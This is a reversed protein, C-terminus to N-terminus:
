GDDGCDSMIAELVTAVKRVQSAVNKQFTSHTTEIVKFVLDRLQQHSMKFEAHTKYLLEVADFLKDVAYVLVVTLTDMKKLVLLKICDSLMSVSEDKIGQQQKQIDSELQEIEQQLRPDLSVETVGTVKDLSAVADQTVIKLQKKAAELKEETQAEASAVAKQLADDLSTEVYTKVIDKQSEIATAIKTRMDELRNGVDDAAEFVTQLIDAVADSAVRRLYQFKAPDDKEFRFTLVIGNLNNLLLSLSHWAQVDNPISNKLGADTAQEEAKTLVQSTTEQAITFLKATVSSQIKNITVQKAKAAMYSQVASPPNAAQPPEYQTVWDNLPKWHPEGTSNTANTTSIVEARWSAQEAAQQAPDKAPASFFGM